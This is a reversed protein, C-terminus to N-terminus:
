LSDEHTTIIEFKIFGSSKGAFTYKCFPVLGNKDPTDIVEQGRPLDMGGGRREMPHSSYQIRYPYQQPASDASSIYVSGRIVSIKYAVSPLIHRM